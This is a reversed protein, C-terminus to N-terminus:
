RTVAGDLIATCHGLIVQRISGREPDGISVWGMSRIVTARTVRFVLIQGILAFMRLKIEDDPGERGLAAAILRSGLIHSRSMLDYIVDFAETPQMQERIIFQAWREAEDSGVILDLYTSLVRLLTDRAAEPSAFSESTAAAALTPGLLEGMRGAIHEAVALHLAEKSGFHYVIAALNADAAKAIQRTTAGEFGYRGFIDLGAAILRTRTESGRDRHARRHPRSRLQRSRTPNNGPPRVRPSGPSRSGDEVTEAMAKM